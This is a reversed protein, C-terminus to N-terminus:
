HHTDASSGGHDPAARRDRSPSSAPAAAPTEAPTFWHPRRREIWDLIRDRGRRLPPIDEALLILGLPLMWLGLLPLVALLGGFILLLGAPVRVWRASPRRLWRTPAQARNPLRDILRELRREHRERAADDPAHAAGVTENAVTM